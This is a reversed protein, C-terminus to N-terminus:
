FACYGYISTMLITRFLFSAQNLVYFEVKEGHWLVENLSLTAMFGFWLLISLGLASGITNIQLNHFLVGLVIMSIFHELFSWYISKDRQNAEMIELAEQYSWRCYKIWKNKFIIRLWVVSFLFGLTTAVAAALYNVQFWNTQLSM